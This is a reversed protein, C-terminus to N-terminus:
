SSRTFLQYLLVLAVLIKLWAFPGDAGTLDAEVEVAEEDQKARRRPRAM